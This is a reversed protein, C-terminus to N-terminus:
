LCNEWDPLFSLLEAVYPTEDTEDVEVNNFEKWDKLTGSLVQWIIMDNVRGMGVADNKEKPKTLEGGFEREQNSVDVVAVNGKVAESAVNSLKERYTTWYTFLM